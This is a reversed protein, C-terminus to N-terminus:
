VQYCEVIRSDLGAATEKAHAKAKALSTTHVTFLKTAPGISHLSRYHIRIMYAKM